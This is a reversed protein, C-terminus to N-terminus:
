QKITITNKQGQLQLLYGEEPGLMEGNLSIRGAGSREFVITWEPQSQEVVYTIEGETQRYNISIVNDGVRIGELKASEWASPMDPQFFVQQDFAKPYIGFFETTVPVALAYINWAQVIMGFDPSVEYMSGPLAYGFSNQLMKLYELAADATGYRAEAIAQVGTPRDRICM